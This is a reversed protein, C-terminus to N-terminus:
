TSPPPPLETHQRRELLIPGLIPINEPQFFPFVNYLLSTEYDM